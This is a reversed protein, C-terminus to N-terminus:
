SAVGVFAIDGEQVDPLANLATDDNVRHIIRMVNKLTKETVVNDEGAGSGILAARTTAASLKGVGYQGTTAKQYSNNVVDFVYKGGEYGRYVLWDRDELQITTGSSQGEEYNITYAAGSTYVTVLIDATCLMYRGKYENGTGAIGMSTLFSNFKSSDGLDLATNRTMVFKTGGLLWSPLQAALIKGDSGLGAKAALTTTLNTIDSVAHTHVAPSLNNESIFSTL